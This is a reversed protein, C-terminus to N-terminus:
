QFDNYKRGDRDPRFFSCYILRSLGSLQGAQSMETEKYSQELEIHKSKLAYRNDVSIVGHDNFPLVAKILVNLALPGHESRNGGRLALFNSSM